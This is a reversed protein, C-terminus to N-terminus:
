RSWRRSLAQWAAHAWYGCGVALVPLWMAYLLIGPNM